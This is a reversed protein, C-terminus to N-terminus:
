TIFFKKIDIYVSVMIILGNHVPSFNSCPFFNFYTLGQFRKYGYIQKGSMYSFCSSVFFNSSDCLVNKWFFNVSKLFVVCVTAKQLNPNIWSVCHLPWNQQKLNFVWNYIFQEIWLMSYERERETYIYIYIYIYTSKYTIWPVLLRYRYMKYGLAHTILDSHHYGPPYM